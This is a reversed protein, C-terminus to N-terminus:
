LILLSIHENAVPQEDKTYVSMEDLNSLVTGKFISDDKATTTQAYRSLHGGNYSVTTGSVSITGEVTDDQSLEVITGDTTKRNFTAVPGNRKGHILGDARLGVGDSSTNASTQGVLLNGSSDIRARETNNTGFLIPLNRAEYLGTYANGSWFTGGTTGNYQLFIEGGTTGNITLTHYSGDAVPTTTGIGLNGSPDLRMFESTNTYNNWRISDGTTIARFYPGDSDAGIILGASSDTREFQAIVPSGSIAVHLKYSPSTGVGLNTGDFVLASGSTLVKSGNLYTVGNATGGNHTITSSTTLTTVSATAPTTAGLTGNHPGSLGAATLTTGDFTMNGSGALAGSSNYQVQTTSGGASGTIQVVTGSANKTYLKKDTVNVALEGQTLDAALPVASATSSNKTIITSTM